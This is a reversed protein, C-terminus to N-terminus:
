KIKICDFVEIGLVNKVSILENPFQGELALIVKSDPQENNVKQEAEILHQYKVCQFLGRLIDANDSIKSKVEVAIKTKNEIFVVDIKDTSPLVYETKGKGVKVDLGVVTPNNSIFEKFAIHFPSEGGNGRIKKAKEILSEVNITLPELQLQQLVWDWKQFTYINSLVRNVIQKKQSKPLKGFDDSNIFWGIGEGPFGTEKNVVVCQIPPIEINNLKGLEILANGIAGLIYNLNRPNSINIEKALDSYLITQGANAQRVLYPLTVKARKLYLKEGNLLNSNAIKATEKM